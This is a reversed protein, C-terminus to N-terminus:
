DILGVVTKQTVVEGEGLYIEILTGDTYSEVEVNVKEVEIELLVDGKKIKDGVKKKWSAIRMETSIESINPIIIEKAM